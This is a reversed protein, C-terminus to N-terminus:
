TARANPPLGTVKLFHSSHSREIVKIPRQLEEYDTQRHRQLGSWISRQQPRPHGVQRSPSMLRTHVWVGGHLNVSDKM